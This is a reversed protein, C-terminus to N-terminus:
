VSRQTNEEQKTVSVTFTWTATTKNRCVKGHAVCEKGCMRGSVSNESDVDCDDLGKAYFKRGVGHFLEPPAGSIISPIEIKGNKAIKILQFYIAGGKGSVIANNNKARARVLNIQQYEIPYFDFSMQHRFAPILVLVKKNSVSGFITVEFLPRQFVIHRNAQFGEIQGLIVKKDKREIYFKAHSDLRFEFVSGEEIGLEIRFDEGNTIVQTFTDQDYAKWTFTDEEFVCPDKNLICDNDNCRWRGSVCKNKCPKNREICQGDCSYSNPLERCKMCYEDAAICIDRLECPIENSKCKTQCQDASLVCFPVGKIDCEMMNIDRCKSLDTYNKEFKHVVKMGTEADSGWEAHHFFDFKKVQTQNSKDFLLNWGTFADDCISANSIIYDQYGCIRCNNDAFSLSLTCIESYSNKILVSVVFSMLILKGKHQTNNIADKIFCFCEEPPHLQYTNFPPGIFVFSGYYKNNTTCFEDEGNRCDHKGDCLQDVSLDPENSGGCSLGQPMITRNLNEAMHLAFLQVFVFIKVNAM